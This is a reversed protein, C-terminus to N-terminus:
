KYRDFTSIRVLWVVYHNNHCLPLQYSRHIGNEIVRGCVNHKTEKPCSFSVSFFRFSNHDFVKKKVRISIRRWDLQGNKTRGNAMRFQWLNQSFLNNLSHFTILFFDLRFSINLHVDCIAFQVGFLM